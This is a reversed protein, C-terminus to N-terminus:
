QRYVNKILLEFSIKAFLEPDPTFHYFYPLTIGRGLELKKWKGNGNAKGIQWECVGNGNEWNRQVNEDNIRRSSIQSPYIYGAM